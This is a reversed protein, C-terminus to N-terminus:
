CGNVGVHGIDAFELLTILKDINVFIDSDTNGPNRCFNQSNEPSSQPQSEGFFYYYEIAVQHSLLWYCANVYQPSFIEIVKTGRDCFVINTLGAGHPSVVVTAAAMVAVQEALSMTELVISKFGFKETLCSVLEVENTVRRSQAYKRSIYIRQNLNDSTQIRSSTLFQQRLFQGVWNVGGYHVYPILLKEAQIHPTQCSEIIKDEPIGFHQLTYKEYEREYSNVVFKDINAFDIGRLHLLHIRPLLDTMWHFYTTGWRVSLFAVTGSVKVPPPLKQSAAILESSGCSLGLILHNASTLFALTYYDAWTRGNSVIAVETPFYTFTSSKFSVYIQGDPTKPPSLQIKTPSHIQRSTFEQFQLDDSKSLMSWPRPNEYFQHVLHHPLKHRDCLVADPDGLQRLIDGLNFYAAEHDPQIALVEIYSAIAREFQQQEQFLQGLNFYAEKFYPDITVAQQTARIAAAMNGQVHLLKGLQLYTPAFNPQIKISQQCAAIAERLNGKKDYSEALNQLAEPLNQRSNNTNIRNIEQHMMLGTPMRHIGIDYDCRSWIYSDTPHTLSAYRVLGNIYYLLTPLTTNALFIPRLGVLEQGAHM